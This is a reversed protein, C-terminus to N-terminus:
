QLGKLLPPGADGVLDCRQPIQTSTRDRRSRASAALGVAVAVLGFIRAVTRIEPQGILDIAFGDGFRKGVVGCRSFDFSLDSFKALQLAQM